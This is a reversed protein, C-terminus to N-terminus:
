RTLKPKGRIAFNPRARTARDLYTMATNFRDGLAGGGAIIVDYRTQDTAAM